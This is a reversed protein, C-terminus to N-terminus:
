GFTGAVLMCFQRVKSAFSCANQQCFCGFNCGFIGTIASLVAMVGCTVEWTLQLYTQKFGAPSTVRLKCAKCPATAHIRCSTSAAYICTFKVTKVPVSCTVYTFQRHPRKVLTAGWIFSGAQASFRTLFGDSTAFFSCHFVSKCRFFNQTANSFSM